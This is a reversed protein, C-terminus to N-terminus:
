NYRYMIRCMYIELKPKYTYLVFTNCSGYHCLLISLQFATVLKTVESWCIASGTPSLGSSLLLFPGSHNKQPTISTQKTQKKKFGCCGVLCVECAGRRGFSFVLWFWVVVFCWSKSYSSLNFLNTTNEVQLVSFVDIKLYVSLQQLSFPLIQKETGLPDSM